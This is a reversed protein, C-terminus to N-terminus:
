VEQMEEWGVFGSGLSLPSVFRGVCGQLQPGTRPQLQDWGLGAGLGWTFGSRALSPFTEKKGEDQLKGSAGFCGPFWCLATIGIGVRCLWETGELGLLSVAGLEKLGGSTIEGRSPFLASGKRGQWAM